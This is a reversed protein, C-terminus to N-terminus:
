PNFINNKRNGVDIHLWSINDEFNIPLKDGYLALLERRIENYKKVKYEKIAEKTRQLLADEEIKVIHLDLARGFKHQSFKAGSATIDRLGCDKLTPTNVTCAGYKERVQDAIWLIRDDFLLWLIDESNKLMDPHVLEKIKFYKCRYQSM